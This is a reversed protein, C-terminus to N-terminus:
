LSNPIKFRTIQTICFEFYVSNFVVVGRFKSVPTGSKSKAASGTPVRKRFDASWDDVPRM